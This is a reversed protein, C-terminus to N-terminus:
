NWFGDWSRDKDPWHSPWTSPKDSMAIQDQDPNAYGPEPWFGWRLNTRPNIDAGRRSVIGDSYIHRIQGWKDRVEAGVVPTFEAFYSHGSGKPYIGSEIRSGLTWDGIGGDNYFLTLIKNGDHIGKKRDEPGAAKRLRDAKGKSPGAAWVNGSTGVGLALIAAFTVLRQLRM